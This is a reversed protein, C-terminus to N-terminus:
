VENVSLPVGSMRPLPMKRIPYTLPWRAGLFREKSIKTVNVSNRQNGGLVYYHDKDEGVLFGVHGKTGTKKERWFVGISGYIPTELPKGFKLWNRALYPNEPLKEKSLTLAIPTEVADGCNGTVIGGRGHERVIIRHEPVTVCHLHGNFNEQSIDKPRILRPSGVPNIHIEYCPRDGFAGSKISVGAKWGAMLVLQLLDDRRVPSSTYLHFRRQTGDYKRYSSLFVRADDKNMSNIFDRDLEKERTVVAAMWGPLDFTFVHLPKTTLPGYVRNQIYYHEPGLATLSIIKHPRSVEFVIKTGKKLCGDSLFAAVFELQQSSLGCGLGGAFVPPISLGQTTMEKLKKFEFPRPLKARGYTGWQGWWRHDPDAHLTFSNHNIVDLLGTFSKEVKQYETLSLRGDEDVQYVRSATLGDFRQWGEETLIEVDGRFCWPLVSPDGLTQGDSKLWKKLVPDTEQRFWMTQIETIWPLDKEERRKQTFFAILKRLWEM